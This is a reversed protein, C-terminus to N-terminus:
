MLRRQRHLPDDDCALLDGPDGDLAVMAVLSLALDRRADLPIRSFLDAIVALQHLRVPDSGVRCIAQGMLTEADHTQSPDHVAM